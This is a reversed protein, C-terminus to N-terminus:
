AWPEKGRLRCWAKWLPMTAGCFALVGLAVVDGLLAGSSEAIRDPLPRRGALSRPIERRRRARDIPIVTGM